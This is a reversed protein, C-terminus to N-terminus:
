FTSGSSSIALAARLALKRLGSLSQQIRWRTQNTTAPPLINQIHEQKHVFKM